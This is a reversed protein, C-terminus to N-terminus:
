RNLRLKALENTESRVSTVITNTHHNSTFLPNNNTSQAKPVSPSKYFMLADYLCIRKIKGWGILYISIYSSELRM